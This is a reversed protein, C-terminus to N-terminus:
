KYFYMQHTCDGRIQAGGNNRVFGSDKYLSTGYNGYCNAQNFGQIVKFKENFPTYFLDEGNAKQPPQIIGSILKSSYPIPSLRSM